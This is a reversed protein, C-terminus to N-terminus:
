DDKSLLNRTSVSPRPEVNYPSFHFCQSIGDPGGIQASRADTRRVNSLSKIEDPHGVSHAFLLVPAPVLPLSPPNFRCDAAAKAPHGVGVAVSAFRPRPVIRGCSM